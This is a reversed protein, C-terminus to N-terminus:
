WHMSTIGSMNGTTSNGERPPIECKWHFSFNGGGWNGSTTSYAFVNIDQSPWRLSMPETNSGSSTKSDSLVGATGKWGQDQKRCFVNSSSNQDLVWITPSVYFADPTGGPTYGTVSSPISCTVLLFKTASTNLIRGTNYEYETVQGNSPLGIYGPGYTPQCNTGSVFVTNTKEVRAANASISFSVAIAGVFLVKGYKKFSVSSKKTDISEKFQKM